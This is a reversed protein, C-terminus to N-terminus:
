GVVVREGEGVAGDLPRVQGAVVVDALGSIGAYASEQFGMRLEAQVLFRLEVVVDGAGIGKVGHQAQAAFDRDDGGQGR